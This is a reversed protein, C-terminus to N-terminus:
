CHTTGKSKHSVSLLFLFIRFKYTCRIIFCLFSAWAIYYAPIFGLLPIIILCLVFKKFRIRINKLENRHLFTYLIIICLVIKTLNRYLDSDYGKISFINTLFLLLAIIGFTKKNDM